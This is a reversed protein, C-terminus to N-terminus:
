MSFSISVRRNGINNNAHTGMELLIQSSTIGHEKELIQGIAAARLLMLNGLIADRALGTGADDSYYNSKPGKAKDDDVYSMISQQAETGNKLDVGDADQQVKEAGVHGTIAVKLSPEEKLAPAVVEKLYKRIAADGSKIKNNNGEFEVSFSVNQDLCEWDKAEIKPKIEYEVVHEYTNIYQELDKIRAEIEKKQQILTPSGPSNTLKVNVEALLQEQETKATKHENLCDTMQDFYKQGLVKPLVKKDCSEQFKTILKELDTCKPPDFPALPKLCEEKNEYFKFKEKYALIKQGWIEILIETDKPEGMDNHISILEQLIDMQQQIAERMKARLDDAENKPLNLANCNVDFEEAIKEFGGDTWDPIEVEEAEKEEKDQRIMVSSKKNAGGFNGSFPIGGGAQMDFDEEDPVEAETLM